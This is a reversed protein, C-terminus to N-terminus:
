ATARGSAAKGGALRLVGVLRVASASWTFQAARAPGAASLRARESPDTLIERLANALASDDHPDVLRCADGAVEPLSSRNSTIVPTGTAMAELVPLGFGESLSPYVLAAAGRYLALLEGDAVYGTLLIREGPVSGASLREQVLSTGSDDPGVVVLGGCEVGDRLLARYADIVRHVNKRADLRGVTLLFPSRIGSEALLGPLEVAPGPQFCERTGEYIVHIREAPFHYREALARRTAESPVAIRTARRCAAEVQRRAMAPAGAPYTEPFEDFALDHVTVVSAGACGAPQLHGFSYIVDPRDRWSQTVLWAPKLATPLEPRRRVKWSEAAPLELDFSPPLYLMWEIEAAEQKMLAILLSRAFHEVGTPRLAGALGADVGVRVARPERM